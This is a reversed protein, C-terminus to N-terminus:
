KESQPTPPTEPKWARLTTPQPQVIRSTKGVVESSNELTPARSSETARSPRRMSAVRQQANAIDELDRMLRHLADCQPDDPYMDTWLRIRDIEDNSYEEKLGWDWGLHWKGVCGTLYGNEKLFSAVTLRNNDILPPSYGFLVGRQLKTRWSYRGTLIGYRTPTCVASGSHADTFYVGSEALRDINLTEIKSQENICSLDGYGLDDALIYIINPNSDTQPLTIQSSLFLLLTIKLYLKM